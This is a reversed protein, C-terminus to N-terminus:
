ATANFSAGPFHLQWAAELAALKRPTEPPLMDVAGVDKIIADLLNSGCPEAMRVHERYLSKFRAPDDPRDPRGKASWYLDAEIMHGAFVKLWHRYTCGDDIIPNELRSRFDLWRDCFTAAVPDGVSSGAMAQIKKASLHPRPLVLYGGDVLEDFETSSAVALIGAHADERRCIYGLMDFIRHQDVRRGQSLYFSTYFASVTDNFDSANIKVMSRGM